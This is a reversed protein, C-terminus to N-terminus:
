NTNSKNRHEMQFWHQFYGLLVLRISFYQLDLMDICFITQRDLFQTYLLYEYEANPFNLFKVISIM